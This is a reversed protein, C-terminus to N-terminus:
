VEPNTETNSESSNEKPQQRKLPEKADISYIAKVYLGGECRPCPGIDRFIHDGSELPGETEVGCKECAILRRVEAFELKTPTRTRRYVLILFVGLFGVGLGWLLFNLPPPQFFGWFLLVIILAILLAWWFRQSMGGATLEPSPEGAAQYNSM